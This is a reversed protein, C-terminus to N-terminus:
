ARCLKTSKSHKMNLTLSDLKIFSINVVPVKIKRPVWAEVHGSMECPQAGGRCGACLCSLNWTMINGPSVTKVTHFLRTGKVAVRPCRQPRDRDINVHPVLFFTRRTHLCKGNLQAPKTLKQQCYDYLDSAKAVVCRRGIVARRVSSKIVGSVGDSDNKGHRSGFFHRELVCGLDTSAYSIDTFPGGSKFQASCGDSFEHIKNMDINRVQRLFTYGVMQFEHVAHYDHKLEDSFFVLNERVIPSEECQPCHYWVVMPFISIQDNVWHASQIENQHFTSYNEAFDIVSVIENNPFTTKITSFIKQQWTANFLHRAHPRLLECLKDVIDALICTKKVLMKRSKQVNNHTYKVNEWQYYNWETDGSADVVPGCHHRVADVGCEDCKLDICARNCTLTQFEQCLTKNVIDRASSLKLDPKGLKHCAQNIVTVSNSINACYECLCQILPRKKYPVVNKPRLQCFASRSIQTDPHTHIFEDYAERIPKNLVRGASEDSALKHNPLVTSADFSNYYDNVAKTTDAPIKDSRSQRCYEDDDSRKTYRMLYKWSIGTYRSVHRLMRFKKLNKLSSVIKRRVKRQSEKRNQPQKPRLISDTIHAHFDLKRRKVRPSEIGKERLAAKKNPTANHLIHEVVEAFKNPDQPMKTKVRSAAKRKAESSYIVSTSEQTSSDHRKTQEAQRKQRRYEKDKERIRLRKQSSMAARQQRKKEKWYNMKEEHETRTMAPQVTHKEGATTKKALYRRQRIQAKGREKDKPEDTRTARFKRKRENAKDLVERQREKDLKIRQRYARARERALARKRELNEQEEERPPLKMKVKLMQFWRIVDLQRTAM